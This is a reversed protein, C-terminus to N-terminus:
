RSSRVFLHWGAWFWAALCLVQVSRRRVLARIAAGMTPIRRTTLSLVVAAFCCAALVGWVVFTIARSTM